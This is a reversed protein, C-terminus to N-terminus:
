RVAARAAAAFLYVKVALELANICHGASICASQAAVAGDSLHAKLLLLLPPPPPPPM